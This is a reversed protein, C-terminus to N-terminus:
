NKYDAPLHELGNKLKRNEDHFTPKATLFYTKSHFLLNQRLFTLKAKAPTPWRVKDDHSGHSFVQMSYILDLARTWLNESLKMYNTQQHM